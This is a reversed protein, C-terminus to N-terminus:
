IDVFSWWGGFLLFNSFFVSDFVHASVLAAGIGLLLCIFRGDVM